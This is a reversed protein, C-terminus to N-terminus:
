HFFSHGMATDINVTSSNWVYTNPNTLVASSIMTNQNTPDYCRNNVAFNWRNIRPLEQNVNFLFNNSKLLEM